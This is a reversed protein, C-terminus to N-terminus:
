RKVLQKRCKLFTLFLCKGFFSVNLMIIIWCLGCLKYSPISLLIMNTHLSPYYIMNTTQAHVEGNGVGYLTVKSVIVIKSGESIFASARCGQGEGVILLLKCNFDYRYLLTPVLM